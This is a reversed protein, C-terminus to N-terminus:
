SSKPRYYEVGKFVIFQAGEVNQKIFDSFGSQYKEMNYYGLNGMDHDNVKYGVVDLCGLVRRIYKPHISGNGKGKIQSVVGESEQVGFTCHPRNKSDRLSYVNYGDKGFYSSVCHRMLFGERKFANEGVLKVLNSGDDFSHLVKLDEETEEIDAGRKALTKTWKASQEVAQKYSMKRLRKPAMDGKFYDLIHEIETQDEQNKKLHAKLTTNIWNQVETSPENYELYKKMINEWRLYSYPKIGM